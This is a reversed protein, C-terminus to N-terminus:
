LRLLGFWLAPAPLPKELSRKRTAFPKCDIGAQNHRVGILLTRDRSRFPVLFTSSFVGAPSHRFIQCGEISKFWPLPPSADPPITARPARRAPRFHEAFDQHPRL